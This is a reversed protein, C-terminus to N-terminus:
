LAKGRWLSILKALTQAIAAPAAGRFARAATAAHKLDEANRTQGVLWRCFSLYALWAALSTVSIVGLVILIAM